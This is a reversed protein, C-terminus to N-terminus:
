HLNVDAFGSLGGVAIGFSQSVLLEFHLALTHLFNARFGVHDYRSRLYKTAFCRDDNRGLHYAAHFWATHDNIQGDLATAVDFACRETLHPLAATDFDDSKRIESAADRSMGALDIRSIQRIEDVLKPIPLIFSEQELQLILDYLSGQQGMTPFNPILPQLSFSCGLELM